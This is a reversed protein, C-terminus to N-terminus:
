APVAGALMARVRALLDEFAFPKALLRDPAWPADATDAADSEWEMHGSMCLVPLDPRRERLKRVFERGGMRPMVMDTVVLDVEWRAGDLLELAELASGATFTEYGYRQLYREMGRRLSLEDDVILIRSRGRPPPAVAVEAVPAEASEAPALPLLVRMTTGAGPTSQAFAHGGLARVIGRVTTLGLGTGLGSPKTTFFPEFLNALTEADMGVGDDRVALEVWRGPLVGPLGPQPGAGPRITLARATVRVVGGAPMADRANIALNMLIQEVQGEATRVWLPDAGLDLSLEVQGVLLRRLMPEMGRLVATLSQTRLEGAEPRSFSLLRRTLAAGRQATQEIEQLDAGREDGAPLGDRLLQAHTIIAALINNFDHAIGGALRGVAELKQAQRLQQELRVRESINRTNLVLARTSGEALLDSVVSEVDHWREARGMRWRLAANRAFPEGANALFAALRDRDEPHALDAIPRGELLSPITGALEGASPSAWQIRQDTGLQLIADSSRQVLSRFRADAAARLRGLEESRRLALVQRALVLVLLVAMGTVLFAIERPDHAPHWAEQV